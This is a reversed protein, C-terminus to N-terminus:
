GPWGGLTRVGAKRARIRLADIWRSAKEPHRGAFERDMQADAFIHHVPHPFFRAQFRM